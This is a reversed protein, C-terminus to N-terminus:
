LRERITVPLSELPVEERRETIWSEISGLMMACPCFWPGRGAPHFLGKTSVALALLPGIGLVILSVTSNGSFSSLIPSNIIEYM